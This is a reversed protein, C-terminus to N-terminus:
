PSTPDERFLQGIEKLIVNLFHTDKQSFAVYFLGRRRYFEARDALGTDMGREIYTNLMDGMFRKGIQEALRGFDRAPDGVTLCGFDIIGTIRHGNVLIHKGKFDGHILKSEYQVHRYSELYQRANQRTNDSLKQSVVPWVTQWFRVRDCAKQSVCIEDRSMNHLVQLFHGLEKALKMQSQHDLRVLLSKTLAHGEIKRYGVFHAERYTIQPIAVPLTEALRPLLRTEKELTEQARVNRAFRFIWHTNIELIVNDCGEENKHVDHIKEPLVKRIDALKGQIDSDYDIM